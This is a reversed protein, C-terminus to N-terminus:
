LEVTRELGMFALSCCDEGFSVIYGMVKFTMGKGLVLKLLLIDAYAM